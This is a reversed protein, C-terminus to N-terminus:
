PLDEHPGSAEVWAECRETDEETFDHAPKNPGLVAGDPPVARTGYINARGALEVLTMTGSFFDARDREGMMVVAASVLKSASVMYRNCAAELEALALPTLTVSKTTKQRAM